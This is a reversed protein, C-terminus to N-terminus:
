FLTQGLPSASDINTFSHSSLFHNITDHNKQSKVVSDARAPKLGHLLVLAEKKHSQDEGHTGGGGALMVMDTLQSEM